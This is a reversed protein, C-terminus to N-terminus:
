AKLQRAAEEALRKQDDPTLVKGTVTVTTQVVLRGVERKLDALMKAHDQATAQRANAIIQEAAAIAKQMEQERVVAAAARAEEIFKNAQVNARDLIERQAVETRALEAKIKEANDLSDAIKDRRFELMNFIPKYAFKWLVFLVIAFNVFQAILKPWQIGLTELM